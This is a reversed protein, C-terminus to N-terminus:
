ATRMIISHDPQQESSNRKLPQQDRPSVVEEENVSDIELVFDGDGLVVAEGCETEGVSLVEEVEPTKEADPYKEPRDVPYDQCKQKQLEDQERCVRTTELERDMFADGNAKGDLLNTLVMILAVALPDFAFILAFVLYRVATDVDTNLASAIFRFSGIDTSSNLAQRAETTEHELDTIHQKDAQIKDERQHIEQDAEGIAKYAQDRAVKNNSAGKIRSEQENRLTNLLEIRQKNDQISQELSIREKTQNEISLEFQQVVSAHKQYANTLFGFIGLSTIGMLVAVASCLYAKLFLHVRCWYVHLYSAAVLKGIELSSAMIAIAIASGSFLVMMGKISFFAACGAVFLASFAVLIRFLWM